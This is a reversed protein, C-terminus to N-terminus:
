ERSSCTLLPYSHFSRLSPAAISSPLFIQLLTVLPCVLSVVLRVTLPSLTLTLPPYPGTLLYQTFLASLVDVFYQPIIATLNLVLESLCSQEAIFRDSRKRDDDVGPFWNTGDFFVFFLSPSFRLLTLPLPGLQNAMNARLTMSRLIIGFLWKAHSVFLHSNSQFLYTMCILLRYRISDRASPLNKTVTMAWHSCLAAGISSLPESLTFAYNLYSLFM